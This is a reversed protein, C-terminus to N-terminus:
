AATEGAKRGVVRKQGNLRLYVRDVIHRRIRQLFVLSGMEYHAPIRFHAVKVETGEPLDAEIQVFSYSKVKDLVSEGSMLQVDILRGLYCNGHNKFQRNGTYTEVTNNPITGKATVVATFESRGTFLGLEPDSISIIELQEGRREIAIPLADEMLQVYEQFIRPQLPMEASQKLHVLYSVMEDPHALCMKKFAEYMLLKQTRTGSNNMRRVTQMQQEIVELLIKYEKEFSENMSIKEDPPIYDAAFFDQLQVNHGSGSNGANGISQNLSVTQRVTLTVPHAMDVLQDVTGFFHCDPYPCAIGYKGNVSEPIFRECELDSCRYGKRSHLSFSRHIGIRAQVNSRESAAVRGKKQDETLRELESTCNPCRWLKAEQVLLIKPAGPLERCGPCIPSSQKKTSAAEWFLRDALRRLCVLLYSNLDRNTRWHEKVLMFTRMGNYITVKAYETFAARAPEPLNAGYARVALKDLRQQYFDAVDPTLNKIDEESLSEQNQVIDSISGFEM